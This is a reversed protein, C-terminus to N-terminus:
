IHSFLRSFFQSFLALHSKFARALILKKLFDQYDTSEVYRYSIWPPNGIVVDFKQNRLFLPKYINKLIFAWVTDRRLKILQAM